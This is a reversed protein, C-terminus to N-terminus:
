PADAPLESDSSTESKEALTAESAGMERALEVFEPSHHVSALDGDELMWIM